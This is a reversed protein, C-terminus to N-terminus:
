RLNDRRGKAEPSKDEKIETYRLKSRERHSATCSPPQGRSDGEGHERTGREERGLNRRRNTSQRGAGGIRTGAESNAM